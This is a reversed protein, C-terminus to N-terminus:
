AVMAPAYKEILKAKTAAFHATSAQGFERRVQESTIKREYVRAYSRKFGTRGASDGRGGDVNGFMGTGDKLLKDTPNYTNVIGRRVMRLAGDLPYSASISASLLFAGEIPKAGNIKGLAELTFVAIGGGASHGVLFVPRNPHNRQYQAIQEALEQGVKRNRSVNTQNILMGAPGPVLAGWRYILLAYPIEADSLGKRIDRNAGSEGEIGPLIVVIGKDVRQPTTYKTGIDYKSCGGISVVLTLLGLFCPLLFNPTSDAGCVGTEPEQYM